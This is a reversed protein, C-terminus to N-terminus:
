SQPFSEGFKGRDKVDGYGLLLRRGLGTRVLILGQRITQLTEM